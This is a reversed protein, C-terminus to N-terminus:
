DMKFSDHCSGCSASVAKFAAETAKVDGTAAVEGLKAAATEFEKAKAAFEASRSWVEPKAESKGGESGPPFLTPIKAGFEQMSKATAVVPTVNKAALAAKIEKMNGKLGKFGEQREAIADAAMLSTAFLLALAAATAFLSLTKKM